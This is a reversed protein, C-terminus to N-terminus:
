QQRERPIPVRLSGAALTGPDRIIVRLGTVQGDLGDVVFKFGSTLADQLLEPPIDLPIRATRLTNSPETLVTIQLAGVQHGAQSELHVDHLDAIVLVERKGPHVSDPEIEATLGIGNSDLSDELLSQDSLAPVPPAAKTALYGSRYHLEVVKSAAAKNALKVIIRHYKGDLAAEDPYYGLVYTSRSDEEATRVASTLDAADYFARGGTVAALADMAHERQMEMRPCAFCSVARVLVPYLVINAQQLMAMVPGPVRPEDMVWVLNKRGPVGALHQIIRRLAQITVNNRLEQFTRAEAEQIGASEDPDSAPDALEFGNEVKSFASILKQPDETFDQLVHLDKGLTYLAIRDNATLATLLDAVGKREYGKLDPQTNLQDILVVTAGNLPQGRNDTKNSFTPPQSTDRQVVTTPGARFVAIHRPKGDDLLTFDDQTFGGVPPGPPGFPAGSSFAASLASGLGAPKPQKGRVTVEVEVLRTGSHFVAPDQALLSDTLFAVAVLSFAAKTM